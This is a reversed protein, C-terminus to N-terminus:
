CPAGGQQAAGANGGAGAALQGVLGVFAFLDFPKQLVARVFPRAALRQATAADLFGSIVVCAPPRAQSALWQVVEVGSLKPMDLDCVLVDVPEAMLISRAQEGDFAALVRHGSRALAEGLLASVARDNDALLVTRSAM